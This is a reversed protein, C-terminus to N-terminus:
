QVGLIAGALIGGVLPQKNMRLQGPSPSEGGGWNQPIGVAGSATKKRHIGIHGTGIGVSHSDGQHIAASAPKM